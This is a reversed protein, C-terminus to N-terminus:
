DGHYKIQGDLLDIISDRLFYDNRELECELCIWERPPIFDCLCQIKQQPSIKKEEILNLAEEKIDELDYHAIKTTM